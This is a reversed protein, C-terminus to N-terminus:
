PASEAPLLLLEYHDFSTSAIWAPTVATYAIAEGLRFTQDYGADDGILYARIAYRRCFDAVHEAVDPNLHAHVELLIAPRAGQALLPEIGQL